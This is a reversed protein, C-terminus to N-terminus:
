KKKIFSELRKDFIIIHSSARHNLFQMLGGKEPFKSDIFFYIGLIAVFVLSLLFSKIVTFVFGLGCGLFILVKSIPLGQVTPAKELVKPIKYEM